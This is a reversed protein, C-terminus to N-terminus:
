GKDRGVAITIEVGDARIVDGTRLGPPLGIRLVRGDWASHEVGGGAMAVEPPITLVGPKPVPAPPAPPHFFRPGDPPTRLREYADRVERFADADGGPRDPHCRKAADHFAKRVEEASAAATVGLVDRARKYSIGDAVKLM